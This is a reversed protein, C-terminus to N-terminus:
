KPNLSNQDIVNGDNIQILNLLTQADIKIPLTRVSGDAFAARFFFPNVLKLDPVKGEVLTIDEPKTWPIDVNAEIAMVTNSTGDAIRAMSTGKAVPTTTFMGKENTLVYYSSSTAGNTAAPSRYAAPMQALVKKNNESDWPEDLKYQKYLEHEEIYPLIAVRWSHPTKGDPGIISAAPFAKYADHYNHMALGIQKLNNASASEKATARAQQIMPIMTTVLLNMSEQSMSISLTTDTGTQNLKISNVVAEIEAYLKTGMGPSQRDLQALQQKVTPLFGKGLGILGDLTGKFRKASEENASVAQGNIVIGNSLDASIVAYDASEWLTSVSNFILGEMGQPQPRGAMQKKMMERIKILDVAGSVHKNAANKVLLSQWSPQTSSPNSKLLNALGLGLDASVFTQADFKTMVGYEETWDTKPEKNWNPRKILLSQQVGDAKLPEANALQKSTFIQFQAPDPIVIASVGVPRLEMTGADPIFSLNMSAHKMASFSIGLDRKFNPDDELMKALPALAPVAVIESPKSWVGFATNATITRLDHAAPTGALQAQSFSAICCFWAVALSLILVNQFARRM